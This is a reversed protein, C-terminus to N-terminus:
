INHKAATCLLCIAARPTAYAPLTSSGDDAAQFNNAVDLRDTVDGIRSRVVSLTPISIRPSVPDIPM